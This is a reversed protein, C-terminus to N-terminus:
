VEPQIEKVEVCYLKGAVRVHSRGRRILEEITVTTKRAPEPRRTGLLHDMLEEYAESAQRNM